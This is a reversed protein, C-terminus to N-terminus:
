RRRRRRRRRGGSRPWWRSSGFVKKKVFSAAGLDKLVGRPMHPATEVVKAQGEGGGEGLGGIAESWERKHELYCGPPFVCECDKPFVSVFSIDTPCDEGDGGFDGKVKLLLVPTEGAPTAAPLGGGGLLSAAPAGETAGRVFSGDANMNAASRASARATERRTLGENAERNRAEELAFHQRLAQEQATARERSLSLVGIETCGRQKFDAPGLSCVGRWYINSTLQDATATAEAATALAMALEDENEAARAAVVAAECEAAEKVAKEREDAQAIRLKRLADILVVLTTPYPHPREPSCGEHLPKNIKEFLPTSYLRLALVHARSLGAALVIPAAM